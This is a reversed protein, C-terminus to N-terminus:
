AMRRRCRLEGVGAGSSRDRWPMSQLLGGEPPERAPKRITLSASAAVSSDLDTEVGPPPAAPPAGLLNELIWAGRLVPSTRNPYSTQLLIGGKGLLGWRRSDTLTEQRFREGTVGRIGYHRALRENLFTHDATVLDTVPRRSLLVSGVFLELEIRFAARLDEDFGPFVRSDPDVAVLNKM